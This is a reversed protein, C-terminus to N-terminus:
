PTSTPSTEDGTSNINVEVAPNIANENFIKKDPETVQSTLADITKVSRTKETMGGFVSSAVFYAIGASVAAILVIMAIDTRKM